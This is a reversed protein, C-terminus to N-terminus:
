GNREMRFGAIVRWSIDRPGFAKATLVTWLSDCAESFVVPLVQAHVFVM